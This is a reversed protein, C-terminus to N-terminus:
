HQVYEDGLWSTQVRRTARITAPERSSADRVVHVCARSGVWLQLAHSPYCAAAPARQMEVNEKTAGAAADARKPWAATSAATSAAAASAATCPIRWQPDVGGGM